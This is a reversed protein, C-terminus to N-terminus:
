QGRDCIKQRLIAHNLQPDSFVFAIARFMCNGDGHIGITNSDYDVYCPDQRSMAPLADWDPYYTRNCKKSDGSAKHKEKLVDAYTPKELLGPRGQAIEPYNPKKM